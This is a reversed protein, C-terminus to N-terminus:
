NYFYSHDSDGEGSISNDVNKSSDFDLADSESVSDFASERDDIDDHADDYNNNNCSEELRIDITSNMSYDSIDADIISSGSSNNEREKEVEENIGDCDFEGEVDYDNDNDDDSDDIDYCSDDYDGDVVDNDDDDDVDVDVGYHDDVDVDDNSDDDSDVDDDDENREDSDGDDIFNSSGSSSNSESSNSSNNRLKDIVDLGIELSARRTKHVKDDINDNVKHIEPEIDVKHNRNSRIPFLKALRLKADAKGSVIIFHIIIGIICAPLIVLFPFLQYLQLHLLVIYGIVCTNAVHIFLDQVGSPMSVFHGLLFIIIVSASRTLASFKKSYQKSVDTVRCYSQKPWPTTFQAIIKSERLDPYLKSLGTSIFFYNAANFRVEQDVRNDRVNNKDNSVIKDQHDRISEILRKKIQTLDKMILMPIFIHSILVIFSSVFIIEMMLWIAFSKFWASQRSGTQTFAFLLIYFLMFLNLTLLFIWGLLKSKGSKSTVQPDDRKGKLMLIKGSIGPLLDCQFLFLLRRGIEKKSAEKIQLLEAETAICKKVNKLDQMILTKVDARSTISFLLLFRYWWSHYNYLEIQSQLQGDKNLGWLEIYITTSLSCFM